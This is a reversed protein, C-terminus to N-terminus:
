SVRLLASHETLRKHDEGLYVIEGIMMTTHLFDYPRSEVAGDALVDVDARIAVGGSQRTVDVGVVASVDGRVDHDLYSFCLM